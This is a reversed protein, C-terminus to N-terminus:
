VQTQSLHMFLLHYASSFYTLLFSHFPPQPMSRCTLGVVIQTLLVNQGHLGYLM